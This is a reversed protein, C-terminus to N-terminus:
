GLRRLSSKRQKLGECLEAMGSDGLTNAALDLSRLHKSRTIMYSVNKCCAATLHCKVLRCVCHSIIWMEQPSHQLPIVNLFM